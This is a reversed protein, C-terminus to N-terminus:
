PGEAFRLIYSYSVSKFVPLSILAFKLYKHWLLFHYNNEKFFVTAFVMPVNTEKKEGIVQAQM